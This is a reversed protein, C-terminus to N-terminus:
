LSCSRKNGSARVGKPYASVDGDHHRDVSYNRSRPLASNGNERYHGGIYLTARDEIVAGIEKFDALLSPRKRRLHQISRIEGLDWDAVVNGHPDKHILDREFTQFLMPTKRVVDHCFGVNHEIFGALM